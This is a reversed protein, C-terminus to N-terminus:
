VQHTWKGTFAKIDAASNDAAASVSSSAIDAACLANVPAASFMLSLAAIFTVMNKMIFEEQIMKTKKIKLISREYVTIPTGM